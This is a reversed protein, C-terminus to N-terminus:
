FTVVLQHTRNTAAANTCSASACSGPQNAGMTGSITKTQAAGTGPGGTPANLTYSLNVANDTVNISAAPAGPAVGAVLGSTYVLGNPCTVDITGGTSNQVGGQSSTYAFNVATINTFTCASTLTINVDFTTSSTAAQSTGPVSVSGLAVLSGLAAGVVMLKKLQFQKM